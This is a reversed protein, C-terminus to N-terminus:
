VAVRLEARSHSAARALEATKPSERRERRPAEALGAFTLRCTRMELWEADARRPARPATAQRAEKLLPDLPWDVPSEPSRSSLRRLGNRRREQVAGHRRRSTGTPTM